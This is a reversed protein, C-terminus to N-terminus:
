LKQVFYYHNQGEDICTGTLSMGHKELEIRYAEEGLSISIRGTMADHWFCSQKPATFLFRGGRRLAASVKAILRRQSEEDLLFLLGWTVVADFNEGFFTSDEVAACEVPLTPFRSRYEAVMSPSADVAYVKFGREVLVRSIPIGNGCGLDLVTVHDPLARSWDGVTSAGIGSSNKGRAEIYRPAIDEYGNSKDDPSL